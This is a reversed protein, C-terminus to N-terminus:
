ESVDWYCVSLTQSTFSKLDDLYALGTETIYSLILQRTAYTAAKHFAVQSSPTPTFSDYSYVLNWEM